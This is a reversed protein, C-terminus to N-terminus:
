LVQLIEDSLKRKRASVLPAKKQKTEEEQSSLEASHARSEKTTVSDANSSGAPSHVSNSAESFAFRWIQFVSAFFNTIFWDFTRIAKRQINKTNVRAQIQHRNEVAKINREMWMVVNEIDLISHLAVSLHFLYSVPASIVYISTLSKATKLVTRWLFIM